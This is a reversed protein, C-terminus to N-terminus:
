NSLQFTSIQLAPKRQHQTEGCHGEDGDQLLLRDPTRAMQQKETRHRNRIQQQLDSNHDSKEALLKLFASNVDNM